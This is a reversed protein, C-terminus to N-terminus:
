SIQCVTDSAEYLYKALQICYQWQRQALKQEETMAPLLASAPTQASNVASPQPTSGSTSTNASTNTSSSGSGSPATTAASSGNNVIAGTGSVSAAASNGSTTSSTTCSSSGSTSGGSNATGGNGCGSVNGGSQHYFDQLKNLQDKLFKILTATWEALFYNYNSPLLFLLIKNDCCL